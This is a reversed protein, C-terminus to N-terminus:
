PRTVLLTLILSYILEATRTGLPREKLVSFAPDVTDEDASVTSTGNPYFTFVFDQIGGVRIKGDPFEAITIGEPRYLTLTAGAAQTTSNKPITHKITGDPYATQISGGPFTTENRGGPYATKRTGDPYTDTVSGDTNRTTTPTPATVTGETLPAACDADVLDIFGDGDNDEFDDSKEL